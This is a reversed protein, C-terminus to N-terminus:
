KAGTKILVEKIGETRAYNLATDGNKDKINIDAGNEVLYKIIELNGNNSAYMLVTYGDKDKADIDAGNEILLKVTELDGYRAADILEEGSNSSCAIVGLTIIAILIIIKIM